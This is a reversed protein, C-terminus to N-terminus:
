ADRHSARRWRKELRLTEFNTKEYTINYEPHTSKKQRAHSYDDNDQCYHSTALRYPVPNQDWCESLNSDQTGALSYLLTLSLTGHGKAAM